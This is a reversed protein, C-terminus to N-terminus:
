VFWADTEVQIPPTQEVDEVPRLGSLMLAALGATMAIAFVPINRFM